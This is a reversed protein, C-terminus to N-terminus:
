VILISLSFMDIAIVLREALHNTNKVSTQSPFVHCNHKGTAVLCLTLFIIARLVRMTQAIIYYTDYQKIYTDYLYIFSCERTMQDAQQQQQQVAGSTPETTVSTLKNAQTQCFRIFSKNM